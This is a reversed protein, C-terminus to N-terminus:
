RETANGTGPMQPGNPGHHPGQMSAPSELEGALRILHWVGSHDVTIRRPDAAICFLRQPRVTFHIGVQAGDPAIVTAGSQHHLQDIRNDPRSHKSETPEGSDWRHPHEPYRDSGVVNTLVARASAGECVVLSTPRLIMADTRLSCTNRVDIRGLAMSQHGAIRLSVCGKASISVRADDMSRSGHLREFSAPPNPKYSQPILIVTKTATPSHPWVLLDDDISTARMPGNSWVDITDVEPKPNFDVQTLGGLYALHLNLKANGEM